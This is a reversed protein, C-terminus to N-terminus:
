IKDAPKLDVWTISELLKEKTMTEDEDPIFLASNTMRFGYMFFRGQIKDAAKMLGEADTIVKGKEFPVENLADFGLLKQNEKENGVTVETVSKNAADILFGKVTEGEGYNVNETYVVRLNKSTVKITAYTLNADKDFHSTVEVNLSRKGDTYTTV